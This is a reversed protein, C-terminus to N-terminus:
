HRWGHSQSRRQRRRRSSARSQAERQQRERRERDRIRAQREAAAAERLSEAQTRLAREREENTRLTLLAETEARRAEAAARALEELRLTDPEVDPAGEAQALREELEALGALDHDRAAEAASIAEALRDAEGRAARVTSGFHGLREAVAAMEADSEHLRALAADVAHQARM